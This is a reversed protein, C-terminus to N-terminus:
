DHDKEPSNSALAAKAILRTVLEIVIAKQEEDLRDWVCMEPAPIDLFDLHLQV